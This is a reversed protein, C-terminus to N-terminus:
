PLPQGDILPVGGEFTLRKSDILDQVKHKLTKCAEVAHGLSNSHYECRASKDYGPPYARPPPKLPEPELLASKFLHQLLQGYLIPIQDFKRSPKERRQTKQIQQHPLLLQRYQRQQPLQPPTAWPPPMQPVLYMQQHYPPQSSERITLLKMVLDLQTRLQRVEERLVRQGMQLEEIERQSMSRVLDCIDPIQKSPNQLPHLHYFHSSEPNLLPIHM